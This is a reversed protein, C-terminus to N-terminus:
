PGISLHTKRDFYHLKETDVNIRVADGVRAKTRSDFRATCRVSNVAGLEDLADPDGTDVTPASVPFHILTEAGLAERGVVETQLQQDSPHQSALSADELDEPRFGVVITQDMYSKLAPKDDM